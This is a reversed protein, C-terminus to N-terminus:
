YKRVSYGFFRMGANTNANRIPYKLPNSWGLLEQTSSRGFGFPKSADQLILEVPRDGPEVIALWAKSITSLKNNKPNLFKTRALANSYLSHMQGVLAEVTPWDLNDLRKKTLISQIINMSRVREIEQEKVRPWDRFARAWKELLSKRQDATLHQPAIDKYPNSPRGPAENFLYNLFCDVEL